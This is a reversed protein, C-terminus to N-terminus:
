CCVWQKQGWREMEPSGRCQVWVQLGAGLLSWWWGPCQEWLHQCTSFLFSQWKVFYSILLLGRERETHMFTNAVKEPVGLEYNANLLFTPLSYHAVRYSLERHWCNPFCLCTGSLLLLSFSISLWWGYLYFRYNTQWLSHVECTNHSM